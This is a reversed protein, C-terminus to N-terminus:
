PTLPSPPNLGDSLDNPPHPFPEFEFPSASSTCLLAGSGGLGLLLYGCVLGAVSTTALGYILAGAAIVLASVTATVRPGSYDLLIGAPLRGGQNSWSGITYVLGFILERESCGTDSNGATGAEGTTGTENRRCSAPQISAERLLMVRMAPWGYVTGGTLAIM